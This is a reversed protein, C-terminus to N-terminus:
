EKEKQVDNTDDSSNVHEFEVELLADVESAKDKHEASYQNQTEDLDRIEEERMGTDEETRWDYRM